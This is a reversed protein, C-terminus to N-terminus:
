DIPATGLLMYVNEQQKIRLWNTDGEYKKVNTLINYMKQAITDKSINGNARVNYCTFSRTDGNAQWEGTITNGSPTTATFAGDAFLMSYRKGETYKRSGGEQIYTLTWARDVFIDEIDDDKTCAAIGAILAVAFITRKITKAIHEM